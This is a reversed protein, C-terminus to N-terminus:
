PFVQEMGQGDGKRLLCQTHWDTQGDLSKFWPHPTCWFRAGCRHLVGTCLFFKQICRHLCRHLLSFGGHVPTSAGSNKQVVGACRHILTFHPACRHEQVPMKWCRVLEGTCYLFIQHVGTSASSCCRHAGTCIFLIVLGKWKYNKIYFFIVFGKMYNKLQVYMKYSSALFIVKM